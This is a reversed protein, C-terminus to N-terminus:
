SPGGRSQCFIAQKSILRQPTGLHPGRTIECIIIPLQVPGYCRDGLMPIRRVTWLCKTSTWRSRLKLVSPFRVMVTGSWTGSAKSEWGTTGIILPKSNDDVFIMDDGEGMWFETNQLVGLTVGMLQGAGRVETYVYNDAGTLNKADRDGEARVPLNPAAQRYSAHFYLADSPLAPVDMYDINSYFAGIDQSGGNFVTLRAAPLANGM